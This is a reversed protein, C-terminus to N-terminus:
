VKVMMVPSGGPDAHPGGVGVIGENDEDDDDDDDQPAPPAFIYHPDEIGGQGM